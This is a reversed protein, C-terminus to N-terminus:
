FRSGKGKKRKIRKKFKAVPPEQNSSTYVTSTEESLTEDYETDDEEDAEDDDDYEDEEFDDDEEVDDEEPIVDEVDEEEEDLSRRHPADILHTAHVQQMAEASDDTDDEEDDDWPDEDEEDLYDKEGSEHLVDRWNPDLESLLRVAKRRNLLPDTDCLQQFARLTELVPNLKIRVVQAALRVAQRIPIPLSNAEALMLEHYQGYENLSTLLREVNRLSQSVSRVGLLISELLVVARYIPKVEEQLAEKDHALQPTVSEIYQRLDRVNTPLHQLSDPYQFSEAATPRPLDDIEKAVQNADRQWRTLRHALRNMTDLAGRLEFYDQFKGM